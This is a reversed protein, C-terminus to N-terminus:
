QRWNKRLYRTVVIIYALNGVISLGVLFGILFDLGPNNMGGLFISLILALWALPGLAILLQIRTQPKFEDKMHM